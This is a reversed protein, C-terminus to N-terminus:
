SNLLQRCKNRYEYSIGAKSLIIWPIAPKGEKELESKAWEIRRLQYDSTSEVNQKIKNVTRPILKYKDHLYKQGMYRVINIKTIREPKGTLSKIRYVADDVMSELENDIKDWDKFVITGEFKKIQPSNNLYWENDYKKLWKMAGHDAKGLDSRSGNPNKDWADIWRRRYVELKDEYGKPPQFVNKTRDIFQEQQNIIMMFSEMSGALFDAFLIFRIPIATTRAKRCLDILWNQDGKLDAVLKSLRINAYMDQFEQRLKIQNVYGKKTAMDRRYLLAISAEYISTRKEWILNRIFEYNKYIYDIDCAIQMEIKYNSIDEQDLNYTIGDLLELAVYRNNRSDLVEIASDKLRCKHKDCMGIGYSQHKRHWYAEGYEDRDDIICHPCYRMFRPYIDYYNICISNEKQHENIVTSLIHDFSAKNLFCTILPFITHEYLLTEYNLGFERTKEALRIIHKPIWLTARESRYGFLQEMSDSMNDNGSWVHYRAIISYLLEDPYPKPFFTLM